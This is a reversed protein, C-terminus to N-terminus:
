MCSRRQASLVQLAGAGIARQSRAQGMGVLSHGFSAPILLTDQDMETWIAKLFPSGDM